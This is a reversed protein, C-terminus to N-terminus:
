GKAGKRRGRVADLQQTIEHQKRVLANQQEDLARAEQTLREEAPLCLRELLWDISYRDVLRVGRTSSPSEQLCASQVEGDRILRFLRSRSIGSYAVADPIRLWRPNVKEIFRSAPKPKRGTEEPQAAISEDSSTSILAIKDHHVPSGTLIRPAM